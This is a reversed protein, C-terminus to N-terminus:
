VGLMKLLIQKANQEAKAIHPYQGHGPSTRGYVGVQNKIVHSNELLHTLGPKNANYVTGGREFRSTEMKVRWGRAYDGGGPMKPSTQKLEKQCTDCALKISKEIKENEDMMYDNLIAQMQAEISQKAM